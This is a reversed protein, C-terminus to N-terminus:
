RYKNWDIDKLTKEAAELCTKNLKIVKAEDVISDRLYSNRRRLESYFDDILLYDGVYQIDQRKKEPKQFWVESLISKNTGDNRLVARIEM